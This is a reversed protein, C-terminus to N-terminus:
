VIKICTIVPPFDKFNHCLACLESNLAYHLLIVRTVKTVGFEKDKDNHM